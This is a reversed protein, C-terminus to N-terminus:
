AAGLPEQDRSRFPFPAPNPFALQIYDGATMRRAPACGRAPRVVHIGLVRTHKKHAKQFHQNFAKDAGAGSIQRMICAFGDACDYAFM